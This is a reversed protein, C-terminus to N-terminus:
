QARMSPKANSMANMVRGFLTSHKPRRKYAEGGEAIIKSNAAKLRWRWGDSAKYLEFKPSRAM